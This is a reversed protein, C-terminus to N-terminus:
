RKMERLMGLERLAAIATRATEMSTKDQFQDAPYGIHKGKYEGLMQKRYGDLVEWTQPAIVRAVKEVVDASPPAPSEKDIIKEAPSNSLNPFLSGIALKPAASPNVLVLGDPNCYPCLLANHHNTTDLAAGSPLKVIAPPDFTKLALRCLALMTHQKNQRGHWYTEASHLEVINIAEEVQERTLEDAM